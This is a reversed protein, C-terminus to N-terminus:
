TFPIFFETKLEFYSCRMASRVFLGHAERIRATYITSFRTMGENIKTGLRGAIAEEFALFVLNIQVAERQTLAKRASEYL